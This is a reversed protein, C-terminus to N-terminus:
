RVFPSASAGYSIVILWLAVTIIFPLAALLRSRRSSVIRLLAVVAAFGVATAAIALTTFLWGTQHAVQEGHVGEWVCLRGAPFSTVHAEILVNEGVAVDTRLDDVLCRYSVNERTDFYQSLSMSAVPLACFIAVAVLLVTLTSGTAQAKTTM